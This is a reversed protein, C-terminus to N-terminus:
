AQPPQPRPAVRISGPRVPDPVAPAVVPDPTVPTGALAPPMVSAFLGLDEFTFVVSAEAEDTEVADAHDGGHHAAAEDGPHVHPVAVGQAYLHGHNHLRGAMDPSFPTMAPVLLAAVALAGLLVNRPLRRVISSAIVM